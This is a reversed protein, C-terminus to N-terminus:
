GPLKIALRPDLLGRKLLRKLIGPAQGFLIPTRDNLCIEEKKLKNVYRNASIHRTCANMEYCHSILENIGCLHEM